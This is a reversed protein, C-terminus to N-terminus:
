ECILYGLHYALYHWVLHTLCFLNLYGARGLLESGGNFVLAIGIMAKYKKWQPYNYIFYLISVVAFFRDLNLLTGVDEKPQVFLPDLGFKIECAHYLASFSAALLALIFGCYDGNKYLRALVPVVFYNSIHLIFTIYHTNYHTTM